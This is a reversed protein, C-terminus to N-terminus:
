ETRSEGPYVRFRVHEFKTKKISAGDRAVEEIVERRTTAHVPIFGHDWAWAVAYTTLGFEGQVWLYDGPQGEQVLFEEFQAFHQVLQATEVDEPVKKWAEALAEPMSVLEDVNFRHKAEETQQQCFTHNLLVFMKPHRQPTIDPTTGGAALTRLAEVQGGLKQALNRGTDQSAKPKRGFGAHALHNRFDAFSAAYGLLKEVEVTVGEIQQGKNDRRQQILKALARETKRRQAFDNWDAAGHQGFLFLTYIAERIVTSAEVWRRSRVLGDAVNTLYDMVQKQSPSPPLQLQRLQGGLADLIPELAEKLIFPQRLVRKKLPDWRKVIGSAQDGALPVQNSAWALSLERIGTTAAQSASGLSAEMTEILTDLSRWRQLDRYAETWSDLALLPMLDFVPVIPAKHDPRQEFVSQRAKEMTWYHEGALPAGKTTAISEWVREPLRQSLQEYRQRQKAEAQGLEIADSLTNWEDLDRKALSGAEFAGYWLGEVQVKKMVKIYDLMSLTQFQLSRFGLTLDLVLHDGEDIAALLTALNKGFEEHVRGELVPKLEFTLEPYEARLNELGTHVAYAKDKCRPGEAWWKAKAAETALIVVHIQRGKQTDCLHETLVVPFVKGTGIWRQGPFCYHTLDYDQVGLGAIVKLRPQKLTQVCPQKEPM